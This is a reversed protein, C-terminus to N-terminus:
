RTAVLTIAPDALTSDAVAPAEISLVDGAALTQASGGSTAFTATTGGAGITCTGINSGNKKIDFVTSAAANATATFQSGAFDAAFTLARAVKIRYMLASSTPIGPYFAAIDIPFSVTRAGLEQLAAEVNDPSGFYGGADVVPIDGADLTVAGSQGNVSTVSGASTSQDFIGGPSYREDRFTLAGSSFVARAIRGYVSTNDWNTTATSVTIALTTRHAVIYNTANNTCTVTTDAVTSGDFTGGNIGVVLGTDGPQRHSFVFGQGLSEMNENIPVEPYTQGEVVQQYSM